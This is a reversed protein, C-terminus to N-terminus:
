GKNWGREGRVRGSKSGACTTVFSGKDVGARGVEGGPSPTAVLLYGLRLRLRLVNADAGCDVEAEGTEESSSTECRDDEGPAPARRRGDPSVDAGAAAVAGLFVACLM